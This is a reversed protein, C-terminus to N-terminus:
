ENFAKTVEEFTAFDFEVADEVALDSNQQVDDATKHEWAPTSSM